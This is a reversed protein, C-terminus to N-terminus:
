IKNNEKKLDTSILLSSQVSINRSKAALSCYHITMTICSTLLTYTFSHFSRHSKFITRYFFCSRATQGYACSGTATLPAGGVGTAM